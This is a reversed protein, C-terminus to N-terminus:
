RRRAKRKAAVAIAVGTAAALLGAVIAAIILARNSKTGQVTVRIEQGSAMMEDGTMLDSNAESGSAGSEIEVEGSGTESALADSEASTDAVTEAPETAADEQIEPQPAERRPDVEPALRGEARLWLDRTIGVAVVLTSLVAATRWGTMRTYLTRLDEMSTLRGTAPTISLFAGESVDGWLGDIRKSYLHQARAWLQYIKVLEIRLRPDSALRDYERAAATTDASAVLLEERLDGFNAGSLNRPRTVYVIM